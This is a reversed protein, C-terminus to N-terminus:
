LRRFELVASTLSEANGREDRVPIPRHQTVYTLPKLGEVYYELPWAWGRQRFRVPADAIKADFVLTAGPKSCIQLLNSFYIATEDPHVHYSVANSVVFDPGFSVARAISEQDIAALYAHKDSVLESAASAGIDIFDRTVDLGMYHGRALYDIFHIGLRLSGCGYDVLRHRRKIRLLKRYRDFAERGADQFHEEDPMDSTNSQLRLGLSSHAEGSNVTKMALDVYFQAFTAEPHARKYAEFKRDWKQTQDAATSQVANAKPRDNRKFFNWM